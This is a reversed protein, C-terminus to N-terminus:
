QMVHKTVPQDDPPSALRGLLEVWDMAATDLEKPGQPFILTGHDDIHFEGRDEREPQHLRWSAAGSDASFAIDLLSERHRISAANSDAAVEYTEGNLSAAHAYVRVMSVLSEWVHRRVDIPLHLAEGSM